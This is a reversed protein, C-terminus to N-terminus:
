FFYIIHALVMVLFGFKDNSWKFFFSKLYKEDNNEAKHTERWDLILDSFHFEKIADLMM